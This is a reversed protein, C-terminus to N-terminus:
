TSGAGALSRKLSALAPVIRDRGGEPLMAVLVWAAGRLAPRMAVASMFARRAPGLRGEDILLRGIRLLDDARVARALSRDDLLGAHWERTHLMSRRVWLSDSTVNTDHRRYRVLRRPEYHFM